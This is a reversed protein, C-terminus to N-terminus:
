ISDNKRKKIFLRLLIISEGVVILSILVLLYPVTDKVIVKRTVEIKNMGEGSVYTLYYEGSKSTNVEGIITYDVNTPTKGGNGKNAIAGLEKYKGWRLIVIEEEGVLSLKIKSTDILFDNNAIILNCNDIKDCVKIALKYSGYYDFPYTIGEDLNFKIFELPATKLPPWPM